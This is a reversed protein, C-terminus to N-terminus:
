EAGAGPQDLGGKMKRSWVHHSVRAAHEMLREYVEERTALRSSACTGASALPFVRRTQTEGETEATKLGKSQGESDCSADNTDEWDVDEDEDDGDDGCDSDSDDSDSGDEAGDDESEGSTLVGVLDM